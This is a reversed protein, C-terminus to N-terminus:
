RSYKKEFVKSGQVWKAGERCWVQTKITFQGNIKFQGFDKEFLSLTFSEPKIKDFYIVTQIGINEICNGCQSVCPNLWQYRKCANGNRDVSPRWYGGAQRSRRANDIWQIGGQGHTGLFCQYSGDEPMWRALYHHGTSTNEAEKILREAITSIDENSDIACIVIYNDYKTKPDNTFSAKVQALNGSPDTSSELTKVTFAFSERWIYDKAFYVGIAVIILLVIETAIRKQRKVAQTEKRQEISLCRSCLMASKHEQLRALPFLQRCESCEAEAERKGHLAGQMNDSERRCLPCLAAMGTANHEGIFTGGCRPCLVSSPM